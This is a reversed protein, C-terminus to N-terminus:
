RRTRNHLWNCHTGDETSRHPTPKRLEAFVAAEDAMNLAAVMYAATRRVEQEDVHMAFPFVDAARKGDCLIRLYGGTAKTHDELTWRM